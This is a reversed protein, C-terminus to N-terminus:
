DNFIRKQGYFDLLLSDGKFNISIQDDGKKAQCYPSDFRQYNTGTVEDNITFQGNFTLELKKDGTLYSLTLNNEDFTVTASKLYNMFDTFSGHERSSGAVTIWYTKKGPQILDDRTNERFHFDNKGILACYSDGLKAAAMKGEVVVTDFEDSPFWAHTYDLLEMEMIGKKEPINYIALAISSDQAVHPLHGYGVWYNPSQYKEDKELAPHNHFISFSSGINMGAVHQQDGYDGPHYNQVSYISYDRTKYTYTNGKQIAVGNTQPNLMRSMAPELGALRLLTFDLLKFDKLFDNSFMESKRIWALSNRITEPNTFAEMALQMMMSQDAMGSYGLPKLEIVDLGNQQRIIVVATDHAIATLVPPLKYKQSTAIGYVIGPKPPEGNGWYYETIGSLNHKPGSKRHSEYARGSVSSFMTQFSQTAVDYFLLDLIIMSKNVIEPDDALNILNILAGIDEKYYVESYFETFGHKWRMELWDLIRTRAREAVVSGTQDSLTFIEDPYKSGILYEASAFLIQHNESWYCVSNQAGEDWWYSFNLLVHEINHLTEEPIRDQYKYVIRILNVLRFDACDYQGSIYELTGNLRNWDISDSGESLEYYIQDQETAIDAKPKLPYVEYGSIRILDIATVLCAITIIGLLLYKWSFKM